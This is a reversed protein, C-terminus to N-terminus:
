VFDKLLCLYADELHPSVQVANEAPKEKALSRIRINEGERVHHVIFQKNTYNEFESVPMTFHWVFDAGIKQMDNPTGFYKLNGRNIVAVQNCSSSIDEIIHTSFIVIRERSLEVLLNRFRIRERPDLGATPEDVVLIRPLNLLIQAIGIRQKMGGSFSGIKDNRRDYMHVSKLVYDLRGNRVETDTIGKLIAQYDLFEWASMNEYTGFAQPLYGILGQLEERYKQTDMGNIWIKGYSQELIGCITRMMTSKGAGNPGLLGFMGTKIELSVGNLARFPKKRKGIIPIQRVINFYGRRLSGFKGSIRAINLNNSHIYDGTAYIVLLLMWIVGTFIVMGINDWRKFFSFLFVLPSIWYIINRIIRNIKLYNHKKTSEYKNILVQNVPVYLLFLFFYVAHSFIWMWFSKEIYFFTFYVLFVFLPLQWLLDYFDRVSKYNKLLGARARVKIGSKWERAFQNDRDYIKVLKRIKINISTNEDIISASAQRLSSMVFATIGPIAVVIFMFDLMQWVFDQVKFCIFLTGIIFVTIQALKLTLPLSKIWNLANELGVYLTPIFVLTLLTSFVLGGIVTIAFPAGIAGVYEAKGMALPVMAVITTISTILIPRVRSLGATMLARSKRYGNKRLINTYDILIIGNNVVVGLLILFGMLTNANFLSNGTFLIALLSGIAALPVSFLLVFPIVLSEFVSALIMIILIFAAGILFYFENFQNEEHVVEVAVGTPLKYGAVIDDIELRYAELLENSQQADDIFSYTVEIQKEQNVRNFRSMGEAYVLDTFDQLDYTAGSTNSVQLRRLDDMNRQEVEEQIDDIKKEKIIIDYNEDDQIFSAGSTFERTFSGLESSVNNLSFGYEILLLQDFYMHIEPQNRSINARARRISELNEIYYQLDEAVGRMVEFNEGKVIVREQNSGIGLFSSFDQSGGQQGAGGVSSASVIDIDAQQIGRLKNEVDTKIEAVTRNKIAKFDEKLSVTLSAQEAQINSGIDQIEEIDKLRSEVDAVILDTSELTTGTPMDVSIQFQDEEIEQLSSVSVALTIFITIFFVVIAGLITGAPNRLSTKLLLIYIQVIRNNTTVKEYFISHSVKGKLLFHALMPILLLAVFLSVMLTSVISVGINNGLLRVMSDSSFIFPFFVTVTTLTSAVISRWVEKTGQTVATDADYRKGSLRYINELVVVSNDLLMGIALVLGVLTLSNLSINFAYFLNFSTFLSIPIALAIFSVLRLNKLFMWLVFIAFLGGVLALNMIQSINEEMTEAVDAQVVIEVEKQALEENLKAIEDQVRHSLEILNAQSESYLVMSVSEMGNIRSITEVEKVGFYVDAVDKLYIPGDAVVINEIDSVTKYESTVLVFHKKQSDHLYGTFVRETAGSSIASQIQSPTINYAKIAAPDYTVEVSKEQGGYVEVTAVGDINEIQDTVEEDVVSRVRDAGETGRVQLEMFMNSTNGSNRNVNVTFNDDLTEAAQDIKEQLRLFLYKTNVNQKFNVQITASRSNLSTEMSEIGDMTGIAGEIPIVAQKEMYNPDVENRSSIQVSLTPLEANPMLEIQLQKYSIYGLLTLGAFLMSILVKRNIIFNM